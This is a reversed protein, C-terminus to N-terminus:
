RTFTGILRGCVLGGGSAAFCADGGDEDAETFQGAFTRPPAGAVNVTAVYHVTGPVCAQWYDLLVRYTGSPATGTAWTVNEARVHDLSCGANSDLDLVGGSASYPNGYYVEEGAPDLVHLDVDVDLDWTVNVQVDGTGVSTLTVPVDDYTLTTATGAGLRLVFDNPQQAFTVLVTVVGTGTPLTLEYYGQAGAVAVVVRTNAAADVDFTTTGGPLFTVARRADLFAAGTSLAASSTAAPPEGTRPQVTCGACSVAAVYETVAAGEPKGGSGGNSGGCALTLVVLSALWRLHLNVHM